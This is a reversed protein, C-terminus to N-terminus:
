RIGSSAKWCPPMSVSLVKGVAQQVATFACDSVIQLPQADMARGRREPVGVDVHPRLMEWRANM